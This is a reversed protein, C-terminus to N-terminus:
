WIEKENSPFIKYNNDSSQLIRFSKFLTFHPHYTSILLSLFIIDCAPQGITGVPLWFVHILRLNKFITFHFMKIFLSLITVNSYFPLSVAHTGKKQMSIFYFPLVEGKGSMGFWHETNLILPSHDFIQFQLSFFVKARKWPPPSRIWM